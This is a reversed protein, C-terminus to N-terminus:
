YIMIKDKAYTDNLPKSVKISFFLRTRNLVIPINKLSRNNEQKVIM